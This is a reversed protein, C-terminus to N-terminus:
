VTSSPTALAPEQAMLLPTAKSGSPCNTSPILFRDEPKAMSRLPPLVGLAEGQRVKLASLTELFLYGRVAQRRRDQNCVM